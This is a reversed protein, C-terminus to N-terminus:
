HVCEAEQFRSSRLVSGERLVLMATVDPQGEIFRLGASPGLILATKAIVEAMAASRAVVTASVVGSASPKGSRPDILHHCDTEGKRWRRRATSSTCVACNSLNLITIDRGPNSPDAVGVPWLSGDARSGGLVIDGGADVAFGALEDLMRAAIDATWGKAIGGLDIGAGAPIFIESRQADLQLDEWTHRGGPQVPPGDARDSLDEFSRDYGADLLLPLITPDFIGGTSRAAEKATQLVAFLLESAHFHSGASRNLRSLESEPDFRSLAAEVGSFLSRVRALTAEGRARERIPVCAVVEVDTNMATFSSSIETVDTMAVFESYSIQSVRAATKFDYVHVCHDAISADSSRLLSIM